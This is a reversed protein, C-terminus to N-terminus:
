ACSVVSTRENVELTDILLNNILNRVFQASFVFM